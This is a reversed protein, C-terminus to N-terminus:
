GKPPSATEASAFGGVELLCDNIAAPDSGLPLTSYPVSGRRLREPIAGIDFCVVPLGARLAPTLAYCWTEPTIQPFFAVDPSERALLMDIEAEEYRGTVFVQTTELLRKDDETYGIVTFDLPLGRRLADNACDILVEYGKRFSIAGILVVRVPLQSKGHHRSSVPVTEWPTVLTRIGPIHRALRAATDNSPALVETARGLWAGSRARLQLASIDEKILSGNAAVCSDCQTVDPEGCYRDHSGAFMIRPCVLAFDHVVVRVPRQLDMVAEVLRPHLGIYHHIEVLEIPLQALLSQLHPIEDPTQYRLDQLPEDASWLECSSAGTKGARLFLSGVGQAKLENVRDNIHREVGGADIHALTVILVRPRLHRHLRAEDLRRRYQHAADAALFNRITEEYGPYRLNIIRLGRFSLALRRAGFSRSGRHRVYVDAALLHKWGRGTARLCFDNEEGYGKAFSRADLAGVDDLCNRRLYLCFGVGTPIELSCGHNIESALRDIEAAQAETPDFDGDRPYSAISGSNTLPTVTGIDPASYAAAVLRDLWGPFVQTDSNLIITDADPDFALGLNVSAPFGLNRRNRILSIASQAELVSLGESLAPEPSADDIVVIRAKSGVTSIVSRVCELTEDLGKYAPIVISIPRKRAAPALLAATRPRKRRPAAPRVDLLLPSDPLAMVSKDPMVAGIDLSNGRLRLRAPSFSFIRARPNAPDPETAIRRRPDSRSKIELEAPSQSSWPLSVWGAVVGDLYETRADLTFDPPLRFGSGLLPRGGLSAHIQSATRPTTAAIRFPASGDQKRDIDCNWEWTRETDHLEISVKAQRGVIEGILDLTWGAFDDAATNAVLTAARALAGERTVAFSWLADNLRKAARDPSKGGILAEVIAAELDSDTLRNAARLLVQLAQKWDGEVALLRAYLRAVESTEPAQKWARGAFRRARVPEKAAIAENVAKLLNLLDPSGSPPDAAEPKM